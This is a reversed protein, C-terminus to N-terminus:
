KLLVMGAVMGMPVAKTDTHRTIIKMEWGVSKTLKLFNVGMGSMSQRAKEPNRCEGKEHLVRCNAHDSCFIEKCGGGAYGIANECGNKQAFLEIAAATEHTLGMLGIRENGLLSSSPVDYKFVLIRGYEKIKERFWDPGAVHPPCSMSLGFCPCGPEQCFDAFKQNIPVLDPSILKVDSVGLGLAYEVIKDFDVCDNM